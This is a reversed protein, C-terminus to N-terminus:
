ESIDIVHIGIFGVLGATAGTKMSVNIYDFSGGTTWLGKAEGNTGGDDINDFVGTASNVDLGDILTDASTTADTAFGIDLTCAGTAVTTVYVLVRTVILPSSYTNQFSAVGGASDSATLGSQLWFGSSKSMNGRQVGNSASTGTVPIQLKGTSSDVEITQSDACTALLSSSGVAASVLEGTADAVKFNGLYSFGGPM